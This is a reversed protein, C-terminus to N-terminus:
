PTPLLFKGNFISIGGRKTKCNPRFVEIPIGYLICEEHAKAELKYNENAILPRLGFIDGEDCFDIITNTTTNTLTVAKIYM